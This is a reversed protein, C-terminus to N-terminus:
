YSKLILKRGKRIIFYGAKKIFANDSITTLSNGISISSKLCSCNKFANKKIETVKFTYNGIKVTNKITISKNTKEYGVIAVTGEKNQASITKM